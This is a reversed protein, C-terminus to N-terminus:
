ASQSDRRPDDTGEPAPVRGVRRRDPWLPSERRQEAHNRLREAKRLHADIQELLDRLHDDGRETMGRNSIALMVGNQRKPRSHRKRPTRPSGCESPSSAQAALV